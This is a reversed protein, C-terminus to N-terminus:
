TTLWSSPGEVHRASERAFNTYLLTHQRTITDWKKVIQREVARRAQLYESSLWPGFLPDDGIVPQARRSKGLRPIEMDTAAPEVQAPLTSEPTPEVLVVRIRKDNGGVWTDKRSIERSSVHACAM